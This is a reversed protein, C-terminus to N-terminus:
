GKAGKEWPRPETPKPKQHIKPSRHRLLQIGAGVLVLGFPGFVWVLDLGMLKAANDTFSWITLGLAGAAFLFVPIALWVSLPPTFVTGCEKCERRQTLVFEQEGEQISRLNKSGCTPCGGLYPGPEDPKPM